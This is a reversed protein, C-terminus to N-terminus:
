DWRNVWTLVSGCVNKTSIRTLPMRLCCRSGSDVMLIKYYRGYWDDRCGVQLSSAMGTFIGNRNRNCLRAHQGIMRVGMKWPLLQWERENTACARTSFCSSGPECRLAEVRVLDVAAPVSKEFTLVSVIQTIHYM